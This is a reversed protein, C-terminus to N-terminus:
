NRNRHGANRRKKKNSYRDHVMLLIRLGLVNSWTVEAIQSLSYSLRDPPIRGQVRNREHTQKTRYLDSESMKWTHFTRIRSSFALQQSPPFDTQSIHIMMFSVVGVRVSNILRAYEDVTEEFQDSM